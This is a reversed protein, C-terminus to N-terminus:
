EELEKQLVELEEQAASLIKDIDMEGKMAQTTIKGVIDQDVRSNTSFYHAYIQGSDGIPAMAVLDEDTLVAKTNPVEQGTENGYIEMADKSYIYSMFKLAAGENKTKNFIACAQAPAVGAVVEADPAPFLMISFDLDPNAARIAGIAWTGNNLMAVKGAAFLAISQDYKTGDANKMWYGKEALEKLPSLVKKFLPDTFKMEGSILKPYIELDNSYLALLDIFPWTSTFRDAMGTGIVETGSEKIAACVKLFDDWTTPVELNLNSFITKNYFLGVFSKSLPICLQKSDVKGAELFAPNLDELFPQGTLDMFPDTKALTMLRSGPNVQFVDLGEGSMIRAPLATYYETEPMIEMNITIGPNADQFSAIIKRWADADEQKWHFFSITAEVAEEEVSSEETSAAEEAVEEEASVAAEEAGKCGSLSFAVVISISIVLVLMMLLVRKM